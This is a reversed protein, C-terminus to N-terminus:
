LVINGSPMSYITQRIGKLVDRIIYSHQKPIFISFVSFFQIKMKFFLMKAYLTDIEPKHSVFNNVYKKNFKNPHKLHLIRYYM